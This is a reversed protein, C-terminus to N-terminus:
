SACPRRGSRAPRADRPATRRATERRAARRRDRDLGADLHLRDLRRAFPRRQDAASPVCARCAEIQDDVGAPAREFSRRRPAADPRVSAAPRHRTRPTARRARRRSRRARAAAASRCPSRSSRRAASRGAALRAGLRHRREEPAQLRVLGVCTRAAPMSAHFSRTARSHGSHSGNVRRLDVAEVLQRQRAVAM